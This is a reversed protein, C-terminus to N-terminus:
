AIKQSIVTNKIRLNEYTKEFESVFNEITFNEVVKKRANEGMWKKLKENKLLSIVREGIEDHDKPKCIFGCKEDLAESVGGVDTAVVPIACSMSEIVTYPFGESISTLISVDGEAYILEPNNHFGMLYFNDELQLYKVLAECEKTYEPVADKNGYVFFKVNPVKKKVVKCTRIMTLIDKLDFIRAAAVVTPTNKLHEPKPRPKFFSDDVGNYIVDINSVNAGYFKEWSINFKSVTTIKDAYHYVLRTICESFNILMKKLFYSYDASSIAIIRERIFVGHETALIPTNYKYKLSLAPLVAIGSITVHSIDVKPVDIAIPILFRYIWRMAITVDELSVKELEEEPVVLQLTECFTNWVAKSTMATKYDYKQFFQWMKYFCTSLVKLSIEESYIEAIFKKFHPIFLTSTIEETTFERSKLIDSYKIDYDVCDLPEEPSWMPVQIIKKINTGIPYRAKHEVGSNISYITFDVNSVKTCLDHAWTSVGGFNYPYTGESILLVQLKKEM